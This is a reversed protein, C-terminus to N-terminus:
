YCETKICNAKIDDQQKNEVQGMETGKKERNRPKKQSSNKSLRDEGFLKGLTLLQLESVTV